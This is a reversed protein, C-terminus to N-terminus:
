ANVAETVKEPEFTGDAASVKPLIFEAAAMARTSAWVVAKPDKKLRKSWNQCYAKVNTTTEDREIGITAGIMAAGMDAVLEERAYDQSTHDLNLTRKLRDKHGTSHVAEHFLTYAHHEPSRFSELSPMSIQDFTPSYGAGSRGTVLKIAERNLYDNAIDGAASIAGQDIAALRAPHSLSADVKDRLRNMVDSPLDIQAVNFVHFSRAFSYKKSAPAEKDTEAQQYYLGPTGKSGEKVMGGMARAQKFTLWLPLEYDPSMAQVISLLFANGGRYRKGTLANRAGFGDSGLWPCEWPIVDEELSKLILNTIKEFVTTKTAM